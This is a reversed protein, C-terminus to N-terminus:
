RCLHQAYHWWMAKSFSTNGRRVTVTCAVTRVVEFTIRVVTCKFAICMNCFPLACMSPSYKVICPHHALWHMVAAVHGIGVFSSEAGELLEPVLM